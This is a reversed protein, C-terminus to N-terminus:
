LALDFLRLKHNVIQGETQMAQDRKLKMFYSNEEDLPLDITSKRALGMYGNKKM